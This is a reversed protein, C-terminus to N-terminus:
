NCLPRMRGSSMESWDGRIHRVILGRASAGVDTLAALAAPTGVLQGTPFLISAVSPATVSM